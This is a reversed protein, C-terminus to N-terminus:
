VESVLVTRIFGWGLGELANSHMSLSGKSETGVERFHWKNGRTKRRSESPGPDLYLVDFVIMSRPVLINMQNNKEIKSGKEEQSTLLGQSLFDLNREDKHYLFEERSVIGWLHNRFYNYHMFFLSNYDHPPLHFYLCLKFVLRQESLCLKTELFWNIM